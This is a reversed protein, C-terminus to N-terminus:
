LQKRCLDGLHNRTGQLRDILTRAVRTLLENALLSNAQIRRRLTAADFSIVETPAATTASFHWQYPPFLWSWGLAEGAGLEQITVMGHDPVFTELVVKGSVILYFHDAPGDQHFIKQQSAFRRITACDNVLPELDPELGSFFPHSAIISELATIPQM